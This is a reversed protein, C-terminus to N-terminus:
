ILRIFLFYPFIPHYRKPSFASYIIWVSFATQSVLGSKGHAGQPITFVM